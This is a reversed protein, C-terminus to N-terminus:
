SQSRSTPAKARRTDALHPVHTLLGGDVCIVQGTIYGAADSALFAAVNAIDNPTGLRPLLCHEELQTYHARRFGGENDANAREQATLHIGPSIANCRVNFKGGATAVYRTLTNVGGKAAAYAVNVVDGAFSSDSSTNIISGGGREILAPLAHKCGLMVGRLNVAMIRDWLETDLESLGVDHELGMLAANNFVIDLGGFVEMAATIMAEVDHEVSVDAAFSRVAGPAEDSAASAIEDVDVALVAAGATSMAHVAARGLRGGAGTVIAVKGALSHSVM